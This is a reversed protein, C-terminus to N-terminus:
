FMAGNVVVPTVELKHSNRAHFVWQARLQAVNGTNIESLASFRRGSYDGHYTLWNASPPSAELDASQVDIKTSHLAEREQASVVSLFLIGALALVAALRIEPQVNAESKRLLTRRRFRRTCGRRILLAPRIVWSPRFESAPKM